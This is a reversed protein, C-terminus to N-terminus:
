FNQGEAKAYPLLLSHLEKAFVKHAVNLLCIGHYNKCDLKDGKKYVPCMVGEIWSEPLTEGILVQQIMENLSNVLCEDNLLKM